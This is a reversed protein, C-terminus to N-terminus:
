TRFPYGSFADLRSVQGLILYGKGPSVGPVSPGEFVVLNIPWPHVHPLANLKSTSIPRSAQGCFLECSRKCLRKGTQRAHRITASFSDGNETAIAFLFCGNGDRVRFNLEEAGITSCPTGHPLTPRRRIEKLFGPAIRAKKKTLFRKGFPKPVRQGGQDPRAVPM